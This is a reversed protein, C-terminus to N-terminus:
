GILFWLRFLVTQMFTNRLFGPIALARLRLIAGGALGRAITDLQARVDPAFSEANEQLAAVNKRFVSMFASPGRQMAALARRPASSPAGVVNAAHQRYLIVPQEDRLIAGGAASVLIYCWWDHWGERPPLSAAVLRIAPRNLAVTCGTAINQTLCAPFGAPGALSASLGIQRLDDDVLRQRACYLAPKDLPTENLAALARALKEPLWVDDQDAFAITAAGLNEAARLLAMFSSVVGQNGAPEAVARFHTPHAAGWATMLPVTRDSSGDDRWLLLWDRETQALLSELFPPLYPAGNFTSLLIACRPMRYLAM